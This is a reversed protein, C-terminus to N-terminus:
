GSLMLVSTSLNGFCTEYTYKSWFVSSRKLFRWGCLRITVVSSRSISLLNFNKILLVGQQLFLGAKFTVNCSFRLCSPGLHFQETRVMACVYVFLNWVTLIDFSVAVYITIGWFISAKGFITTRSYSNFTDM